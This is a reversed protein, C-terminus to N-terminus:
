HEKIKDEMLKSIKKWKWLFYLWLLVFTHILNKENWLILFASFKTNEKGILYLKQKNDRRIVNYDNCSIARKFFACLSYTFLDSTGKAKAFLWVSSKMVTHSCFVVTYSFMFKLSTIYFFCFHFFCVFVVFCIVGCDTDWGTCLIVLLKLKIDTVVVKAIYTPTDQKRLIFINYMNISESKIYLTTILYQCIFISCRSHRLSFFVSYTNYLHSLWAVCLYCM